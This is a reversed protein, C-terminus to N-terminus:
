YNNYGCKEYHTLPKDYTCGKSLNFRKSSTYNKDFKKNHDKSMSRLHVNTSEMMSNNAFGHSTISNTNPIMQQNPRLDPLYQNSKRRGKTSYHTSFKSRTVADANVDSIRHNKFKDPSGRILTKPYGNQNRLSGHRSSKNRKFESNYQRNDYDFDSSNIDIMDDINNQM